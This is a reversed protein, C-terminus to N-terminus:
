WSQAKCSKDCYKAWNRKRDAKRAFFGGGCNKCQYFGDRGHIDEALGNKVDVEYQERMKEHEANRAKIFKRRDSKSM